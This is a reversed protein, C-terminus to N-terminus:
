IVSSSKNINAVVQVTKRSHHIGAYILAIETSCWNGWPRAVYPARPRLSPLMIAVQVTAIITDM